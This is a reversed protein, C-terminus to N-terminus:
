EHSLSEIYAAYWEPLGLRRVCGALQKIYDPAPAGEKMFGAIYCFVPQWAGDLTEALVAEPLYKVGFSNELETYLRGIAAHTVEAISGYVCSNDVHKLNVRPRIYLQYGNLRAPVVAPSDIGLEALVSQDMFTGYFFVRVRKETLPGPRGRKRKAQDNM